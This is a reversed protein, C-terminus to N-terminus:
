SNRAPDPRRLNIGTVFLRSVWFVNRRFENFIEASKGTPQIEVLRQGIILDCQINFLPEARYDVLEQALTANISRHKDLAPGGPRHLACLVTYKASSTVNSAAYSRADPKAKQLEGHPTPRPEKIM